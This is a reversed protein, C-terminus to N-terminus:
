WQHLGQIGNKSPDLYTLTASLLHRDFSLGPDLELCTDLPDQRMFCCISAFLFGM